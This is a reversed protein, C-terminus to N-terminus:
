LDSSTNSHNPPPSTPRGSPTRCKKQWDNYTSRSWSSTGMEAKVSGAVRKRRAAVKLRSNKSKRKKKPSTSDSGFQKRRNPSSNNKGRRTKM